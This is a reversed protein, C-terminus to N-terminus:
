PADEADQMDAIAIGVADIVMLAVVEDAGPGPAIEFSRVTTLPQLAIRDLMAGLAQATGSAVLEFRRTTTTLRGRQASEVEDAPALRDIRVGSEDAARQLHAGASLTDAIADSWELVRDRIREVRAHDHGGADDAADLIAQADTARLNAETV